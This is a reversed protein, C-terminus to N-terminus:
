LLDCSKSWGCWRPRRLAEDREMAVVQNLIRINLDIPDIRNAIDLAVRNKFLICTLLDKWLPGASTVTASLDHKIAIITKIIM